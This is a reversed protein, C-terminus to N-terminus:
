KLKIINTSTEGSNQYEDYAKVSIKNVGFNAKSIDIKTKFPPYFDSYVLSNNLYFDVEKIKFKSAVAIETDIFNDAININQPKIIQIKPKNEETHIDDYEYPIKDNVFQFSPNKIVWDILGNEWNKYQPDNEPNEPRPGLINNKDIYFLLNHVNNYTKEIILNKPTLETALKGSIKDIKVTTKNTYGGNLIEKDRVVEKPKEFNGFVLRDSLATIFNNFIPGAVISGAAGNKMSKSDNNGAWVSVSVNTTYGVVWADKFEQTTGTKAAVDLGELKLSNNEGFVPARLSNDSLISTIIKATNEDLIRRPKPKWKELIDGNSDEIRLISMLDNKIGNNSFVSFASAMEIPKVEAGGLVLSLGIRSRDNITTIGMNKVLELVDDIGALYLAKVAPVNLSQALSYKLAVPGRFKGDYNQPKYSDKPDNSTSFETEVDFINTNKTFGKELLKAYAFPKFSSGPQRKATTVNFNGDNKIDFYDLSGVMALIQGTKSDVVSIAANSAGYKKLHEKSEELTTEALKQINYDLTTYVKLGAKQIYEFGYKEELYDRIYAIFHPAKIGRSEQSFILTDNKANEYSNNNIYGLENMRRLIYNKRQFLKEKHKGYPSFFSPRQPLAALLAAESLSIESASKNFFTQAASEIGYANSGYPIQNLYFTLIQDKTYRRELEIALVAEKIKRIITKEPTLFSNKVLQQTITSGGRRKGLFIDDFLAKLISKVDIGSHLYFDDDEAALTADKVYQSIKESSVITRKEEGHIDYLIIKGTKDYIKTSEIKKDTSISTPDPLDKVMNLFWITSVPILFALFLLTYKFAFRFFSKIVKKKKHKYDVKKSM